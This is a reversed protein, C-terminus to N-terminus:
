AARIDTAPILRPGHVDDQDRTEPEVARRPVVHNGGELLGPVVHMRERQGFHLRFVGVARSLPGRPSPPTM